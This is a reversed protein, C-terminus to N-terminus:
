FQIYLKLSFQSIFGLIQYLTRRKLGYNKVIEPYDFANEWQRESITHGVVSPETAHNGSTQYPFTFAVSEEM